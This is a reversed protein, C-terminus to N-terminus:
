DTDDGGGAGDFPGQLADEIQERRIGKYRESGFAASMEEPNKEAM